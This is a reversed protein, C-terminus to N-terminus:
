LGHLSEVEGFIIDLNLQGPTTGTLTIKCSGYAASVEIILIKSVDIVLGIQYLDLRSDLVTYRKACWDSKNNLVLVLPRVIIGFGTEVRTRTAGVPGVKQLIANLSTTSPTATSSM